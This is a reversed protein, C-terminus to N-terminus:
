FSYSVYEQVTVHVRSVNSRLGGYDFKPTPTVLKWNVVKCLADLDEKSVSTIAADCTPSSRSMTLASGLRHSLIACKPFPTTVRDTCVRIHDANVPSSQLTGMLLVTEGPLPVEKM